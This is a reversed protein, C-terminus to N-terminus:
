KTICAVEEPLASSTAGGDLLMPISKGGFYMRSQAAYGAPRPNQRVHFWGPDLESLSTIKIRGSQKALSLLSSLSKSPFKSNITDTKLDSTLILLIPPLVSLTLSSGVM